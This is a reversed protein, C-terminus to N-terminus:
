CISAERGEIGRLRDSQEALVSYRRGGLPYRNAADEERVRLVEGGVLQKSRDISTSGSHGFSRDIIGEAKEQSFSQYAGDNDVRVFNKIVRIRAGVMVEIVDLGSGQDVDFLRLDINGQEGVKRM